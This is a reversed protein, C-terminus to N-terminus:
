AIRAIFSFVFKDGSFSSFPRTGNVTNLTGYTGSSNNVFLGITTSNIVQVVGTYSAVGTEELLAQGLFSQSTTDLVLSNPVTMRVPDGVSSTSGLTFSVTCYLIKNFVSYAAATTGNGPTLNTWSPTFSTYAGAANLESATLVQGAVYTGFNAM